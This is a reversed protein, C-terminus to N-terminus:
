TQEPPITPPTTHRVNKIQTACILSLTCAAAASFYYLIAAIHLLVHQPNLTLVPIIFISTAAAAVVATISLALLPVKEANGGFIRFSFISMILVLLIEPPAILTFCVAFFAGFPDGDTRGITPKEGAHLLLTPYSYLFIVLILAIGLVFCVLGTVAAALSLKKM